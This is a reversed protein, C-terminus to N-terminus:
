NGEKKRNQALPFFQMNIQMVDCYDADDESLSLLEKWFAEMRQKIIQKGAPSVKVTVSRIDREKADFRDISEQALNIMEKHYNVVAVSLVESPTAVTPDTCIWKGNQQAILGLSELLVISKKVKAPTIAPVIRESIWLPDGSYSDATVLERVVPNYWNSLYEYQRNEILTIESYERTILIKKFCADKESHTVAHDFAIITNFYEKEAANLAISKALADRQKDSIGIKRSLLLQLFNPSTSGAMRAFARLSYSPILKKREEVFDRCYQRYDLYKYINISL